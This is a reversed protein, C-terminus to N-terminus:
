FNLVAFMPAILGGEVEDPAWAEVDGLAGV